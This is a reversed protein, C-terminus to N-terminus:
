AIQVKVNGIRGGNDALTEGVQELLGAIEEASYRTSGFLRFIVNQAPQQQQQTTNQALSPASSASPTSAGVSSPKGGSLVGQIMSGGFAIAAGAAAVALAPGVIPIGVLAAYAGTAARYTNATIEDIAMIQQIRKAAKAARGQGQAVSALGKIFFDQTARMQDRKRQEAEEAAAAAEAAYRIEDRARSVRLESYFDEEEKAKTKRIEQHEDEIALQKSLEIATQESRSLVGSASSKSSTTQPSEKAEIQKMRKLHESYEKEILANKEKDGLKQSEAYLKAEALRNAYNESEAEQLSLLSKRYAEVRAQASASLQETKNDEHKKSAKEDEGWLAVLQSMMGSGVDGVLKPYEMLANKANEFDGTILNYFVTGVMGVTLMLTNFAGSILSLTTAISKFALTLPGTIIGSLWFLLDGVPKLTPGFKIAWELMDNLRPLVREAIGNRVSDLLGGLMTFNDNAEESMRAFDESITAAAAGMSLIADRGQNLLPVLDPGSREGFLEIALGTKEAGDQMNKFQDAVDLMVQYSSRLKGSATTTSIGLGALKEGGSAIESNLKNMALKMNAGEGAGLAFAMSLRNYEDVSVGAAQAGKLAADGADLAGKIWATFMGVSLAGALAVLNAKLSGIGKDFVSTQRDANQASQRYQDTARAAQPAADGALERLDDSARRVSSTDAEVVLRATETM